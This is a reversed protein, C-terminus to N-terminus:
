IVITRENEERDLLTDTSKCGSGTKEFGKVSYSMLNMMKPFLDEQSPIEYGDQVYKSHFVAYREAVFM